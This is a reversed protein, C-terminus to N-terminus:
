LKRGNGISPKRRRMWMANETWIHVYNAVQAYYDLIGDAGGGRTLKIISATATASTEPTPKGIINIMQELKVLGCLIIVFRRFSCGRHKLKLALLLGTRDLKSQFLVFM